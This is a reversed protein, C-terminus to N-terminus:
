PLLSCLFSSYVLLFSFVLETGVIGEHVEAMGEHVERKNDIMSRMLRPTSCLWIRFVPLLFLHFSLCLIISKRYQSFLYPVSFLPRQYCRNKYEDTGVGDTRLLLLCISCRYGFYRRIKKKKTQGKRPATESVGHSNM